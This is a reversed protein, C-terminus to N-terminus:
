NAKCMPKANGPLRQCPIDRSDLEVKQCTEKCGDNCYTLKFPISPPLHGDSKWHEFDNSKWNEHVSFHLHPSNEGTWGTMGEWGVQDGINVKDGTKVTVGALHAYFVMRGDVNLIKVQNGFGLGCQDNETKCGDYSIVVGSIAAIVPINPRKPRESHLDLAFATNVWNHSNGNPTLDGQDCWIPTNAQFPFGIPQADGYIPKCIAKDKDFNVCYQGSPCAGEKGYDCKIESDWLPDFSLAVTMTVLLLKSFNM